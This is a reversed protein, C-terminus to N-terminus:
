FGPEPDGGGIGGPGCIWSQCPGIASECNIGTHIPCDIQTWITPRITHAMCGTQCQIFQTFTTPRITNAV